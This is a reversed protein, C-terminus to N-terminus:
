TQMSIIRIGAVKGDRVAPPDGGRRKKSTWNCLHRKTGAAPPIVDREKEKEGTVITAVSKM